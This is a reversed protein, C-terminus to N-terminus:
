LYLSKGNKLYQFVEEHQHPLNDANSEDSWLFLFLNNMNKFFWYKFHEM